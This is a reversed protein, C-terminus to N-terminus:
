GMDRLAGAKEAYCSHSLSQPQLTQTGEDCSARPLSSVCPLPLLNSFFLSLLLNSLLLFPLFVLFLASSHLPLLSSLPFPSSIHSFLFPFSFILFPAPFSSIYSVSSLFLSLCFVLHISFLELGSKLASHNKSWVAPEETVMCSIAAVQINRDM